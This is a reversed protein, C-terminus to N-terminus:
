KVPSATTIKQTYTQELDRISKSFLHTDINTDASTDRRGAAARANRLIPALQRCVLEEQGRQLRAVHKDLLKLVPFCSTLLTDTMISEDMYVSHRLSTPQQM